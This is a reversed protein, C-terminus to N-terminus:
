FGADSDGTAVAGALACGMCLHNRWGALKKKTSKRKQCFFFYM